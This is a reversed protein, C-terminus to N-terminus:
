RRLGPRSRGPTLMAAIGVLIASGVLAALPRWVAAEEFTLYAFLGLLAALYVLGDGFSRVTKAALCLCLLMSGGIWVGSLPAPLWGILPLSVLASGYWAKPFLDFALHVAVGLSAGTVFRKPAVLTSRGVVISVLLPLLVGHTLASRHLLLETRQDVDPFWEGLLLGLLLAAVGGIRLM